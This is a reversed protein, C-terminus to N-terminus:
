AAAARRIRRALIVMMTLRNRASRGGFRDVVARGCPEPRGDGGTRNGRGRGGDDSRSPAASRLAPQVAVSGSASVAGGAV